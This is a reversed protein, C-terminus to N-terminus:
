CQCVAIKHFRNKLKKQKKKTHKKRLKSETLTKIKFCFNCFPALSTLLRRPM